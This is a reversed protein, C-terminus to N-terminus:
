ISWDRDVIDPFHDLIDSPILDSLVPCPENNIIFMRLRACEAIGLDDLMSKFDSLNASLEGEARLQYLRISRAMDVFTEDCFTEASEWIKGVAQSTSMLARALDPNPLDHPDSRLCETYVASVGNILSMCAIYKLSPVRIRHAHDKSYEEIMDQFTEAGEVNLAHESVASMRDYFEIAALNDRSINLSNLTALMGVRNDIGMLTQCLRAGSRILRVTAPGRDRHNDPNMFASVVEEYTARTDHGHDRLSFYFTKLEEALEPRKRTVECGVSIIEDGLEEDSEDDLGPTYTGALIEKGAFRVVNLIEIATRVGRRQLEPPEGGLFPLRRTEGVLELLKRATSDIDRTASNPGVDRDM